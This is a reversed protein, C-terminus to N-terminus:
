RKGNHGGGGGGHAEGDGHAEGGGHPAEAHPAAHPAPHSEPHAAGHPANSHEPVPHNNVPHGEPHGGNRNVTTKNHVVTNHVVTNHVYTSHNAAYGGNGRYRGGGAEVFRHGGWGHAYGWGAWPGVGLFIGNYFYGPGYFGVPACAYPPAEYYGYPCVPPVGISVSVQAHAAPVMGLAAVMTAASLIAKFRHM